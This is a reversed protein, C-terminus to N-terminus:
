MLCMKNTKLFVAMLMEQKKLPREGEYKISPAGTDIMESEELIETIAM